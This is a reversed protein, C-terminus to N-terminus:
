QAVAIEAGIGRYGTFRGALNFIPEGSVRYLHKSGNAKTQSFAFNLFPERAAIKAQLSRREAEDWGTAEEGAAKGFFGNMRIAIMEFVPILVTTSDGSDNQEWHWDSALATLSRFRAESEVLQATRELVSQELVMNHRQIKTHCLRVELMNHIRTKAEKLDFPKSIFDTAGARLARLKHRPEATLVLVSLYDDLALEKLGQLVQFGDMGPMELDLLILDFHSEQHLACVVTPDKTSTVHIYGANELLQELLEVNAPKDDVILVKANLIDNESIM